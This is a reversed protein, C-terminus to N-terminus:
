VQTPLRRKLCPEVFHVDIINLPTESIFHTSTINSLARLGSLGSTERERDLIVPFGQYLQGPALNAKHDMHVGKFGVYDPHLVCM